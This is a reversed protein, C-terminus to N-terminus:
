YKITLFKCIKHNFIRVIVRREETTQRVHQVLRVWKVLQGVFYIPLFKFCSKFRQIILSVTFTSSAAAAYLKLLAIFARKYTKLFDALYQIFVIDRM